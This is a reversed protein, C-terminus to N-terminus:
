NPNKPGSLVERLIIEALRKGLGYKEILANLDRMTLNSARLCGNAAAIFESVGGPHIERNMNMFIM